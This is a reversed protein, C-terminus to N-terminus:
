GFVVFKENLHIIEGGHLVILGRMGNLDTIGAYICLAMDVMGFIQNIDNGAIIVLFGVHRNGICPITFL